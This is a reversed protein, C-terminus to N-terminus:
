IWWVVAAPDLGSRRITERIVVAGLETAATVKLSGGYTGIATRVPACIVAEPKSM